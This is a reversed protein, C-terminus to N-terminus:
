PTSNEADDRSMKMQYERGICGTGLGEASIKMEFGFPPMAKFYVAIV